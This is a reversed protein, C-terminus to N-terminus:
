LNAGDLNLEKFLFRRLEIINEIAGTKQTYKKGGKFGEEIPRDNRAQLEAVTFDSATMIAESTIESLGLKDACQGWYWNNLREGVTLPCCSAELKQYKITRGKVLYEVTKHYFVRIQPGSWQYSKLTKIFDSLKM